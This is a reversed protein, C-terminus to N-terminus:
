GLPCEDLKTKLKYSDGSDFQLQDTDINLELGNSTLIIGHQGDVLARIKKAEDAGADWTLGGTGTGAAELEVDLRNGDKILGNGANINSSGPPGPLGDEGDEGDEGPPGPPGVGGKISGDEMSLSAMQEQLINRIKDEIDVEENEPAARRRDIISAASVFVSYNKAPKTPKNGSV